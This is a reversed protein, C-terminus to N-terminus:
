SVGPLQVRTKGVGYRLGSKGTKAIYDDVSNVHTFQHLNITHGGM